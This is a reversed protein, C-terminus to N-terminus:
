FHNDSNVGIFVHIVTTQLFSELKEWQYVIPFLCKLILKLVTNIRGVYQKLKKKLLYSVYLVM